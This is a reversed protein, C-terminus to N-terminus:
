NNPLSIQEPSPLAAWTTNYFIGTKAGLSERTGNVATVRILILKGKSINIIATPNDTAPVELIIEWDEGLNESTYLRYSTAHDVLNWEVTRDIAYLPEILLLIIIIILLLKKMIVCGM